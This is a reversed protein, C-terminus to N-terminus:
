NEGFGSRAAREINDLCNKLIEIQDLAMVILLSYEEKIYQNITLIGDETQTVQERIKKLAEMLSRNNQDM